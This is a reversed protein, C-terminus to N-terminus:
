EANQRYGALGFLITIWSRILEDGVVGAISDYVNRREGCCGGGMGM